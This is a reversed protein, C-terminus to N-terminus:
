KATLFALVEAFSVRWQPIPQGDESESRLEGVARYFADAVDAGQIAEAFVLRETFVIDSGVRWMPWMSHFAASAGAYSTILASSEAGTALRAIGARWQQEYERPSWVSLDAAFGDSENGLELGGLAHHWGEDDVRPGTKFGIYFM